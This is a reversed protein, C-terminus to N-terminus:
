PVGGAGAPREFLASVPILPAAPEYAIATVEPAAAEVAARIREDRGATTCGCGGAPARLLATGDATVELLAVDDGTQALAREVRTPVDDPHLGHVLLLSAVLDDRAMATLVPDTLAGHAHLLELLRHLGAGYLGTLLRALEEARDRGPGGSTLLADIREGAARWDEGPVDGM